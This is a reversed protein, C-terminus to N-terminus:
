WTYLTGNYVNVGCADNLGNDYLEMAGDVGVITVVHGAARTMYNRGLGVVVAALLPLLPIALYIQQM